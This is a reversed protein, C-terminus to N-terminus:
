CPNFKCNSKLNTFEYFSLKFVSIQKNNKNLGIGKVLSVQSLQLSFQHNPKNRRSEILNCCITHYYKLM